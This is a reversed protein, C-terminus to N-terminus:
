RYVVTLTEPIRVTFNDKTDSCYITLRFLQKQSFIAGYVNKDM